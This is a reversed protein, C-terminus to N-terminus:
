PRITSFGDQQGRDTRQHDLQAGQSDDGPNAVLHEDAIKTLV